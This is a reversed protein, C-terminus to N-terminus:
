QYWDDFLCNFMVQSTCALSDRQNKSHSALESPIGDVTIATCSSHLSMLLLSQYQYGVMGRIQLTRHCLQSLIGVTRVCSAIGRVDLKSVDIQMVFYCYVSVQEKRLTCECKASRFSLKPLLLLQSRSVRLSQM